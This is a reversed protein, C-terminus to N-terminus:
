DYILSEEERIRECVTWLAQLLATYRSGGVPEWWTIFIACIELWKKCDEGQKKERKKRFRNWLISYTSYGKWPLIKKEGFFTAEMIDQYGRPSSSSLPTVRDISSNSQDDALFWSWQSKYTHCLSSSWEITLVLVNFSVSRSPVNSVLKRSLYVSDSIRPNTFAGRLVVTKLNM